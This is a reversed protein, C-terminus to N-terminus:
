NCQMKKEIMRLAKQDDEKLSRKYKNKTKWWHVADLVDLESKSTKSIVMQVFPYEEALEQSKFKKIGNLLPIAQLYNRRDRRDYQMKTIWDINRHSIADINVIFDDRDPYIIYSVRRTRPKSRYSKRDYVIGDPLYRFFFDNVDKELEYIGNKPLDPQSWETYNGRIRESKGRGYMMDYPSSVVLIRDGTAINTNNLFDIFSKSGDTVLRDDLEYIFEVDGNEVSTGNLFNVRGQIDGFVNSRDVLGQMLVMGDRYDTYKEEMKEKDSDFTYKRKSDNLMEDKEPFLKTLFNLKSDITYINDGNRILVYTNFNKIIQWNNNWTDRSHSAKMDRRIRMIRVCKPHPLLLEFNKGGLYDHESLLWEDFQDLSKFDLGENSPDGVEEDMYMMQQQLKIPESDDAPNGSQIQKITEEIGAYVELTFVIKELKKVTKRVKDLMGSVQRRLIDTKTHIIGQIAKIELKKRKIQDLKCEYFNQNVVMLDTSDSVGQDEEDFYEKFLIEGTMVKDAIKKVEEFDINKIVEYYDEFSDLSIEHEDGDIDIYDIYDYKERHKHFGIVKRTEEGHYGKNIFVDGINITTNDKLVLNNKKKIIKDTM